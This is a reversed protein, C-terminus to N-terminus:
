GTVFRPLDDLPDAWDDDGITNDFQEWTFVYCSRTDGTAMATRYAFFRREGYEVRAQESLPQEHDGRGRGQYDKFFVKPINTRHSQEAPGIAANGHTVYRDKELPQNSVLLFGVTQESSWYAVRDPHLLEEEFLRDPLAIKGRDTVTGDGAYHWGSESDTM